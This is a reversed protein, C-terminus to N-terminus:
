SIIFCNADLQDRNVWFGFFTASVSCPNRSATDIWVHGVLSSYQVLVAKYKVWPDVSELAPNTGQFLNHAGGPMRISKCMLQKKQDNLSTIYFLLKVDATEYLGNYEAIFVSYGDRSVFWTLGDPKIVCMHQVNFWNRHYQGQIINGRMVIIKSMNIDLYLVNSENFVLIRQVQKCFKLEWSVCFVNRALQLIMWNIINLSVISM